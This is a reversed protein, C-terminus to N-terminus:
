IAGRVGRSTDRPGIVGAMREWVANVAPRVTDWPLATTPKANEYDTAVSKEVEDFKEGPYKFFAEYATRYAHTFQKYSYNKAYPQKSHRRRWYAAEKRQDVGRKRYSKGGARKSRRQM